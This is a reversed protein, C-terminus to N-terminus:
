FGIRATAGLRTLKPADGQWNHCHTLAGQRSALEGYDDYIGGRGRHDRAFTGVHPRRASAGHVHNAYGAPGPSESKAIWSLTNRATSSRPASSPRGVRGGRAGLGNAQTKTRASAPRPAATPDAPKLRSYGPSASRGRMPSGAHDPSYLAPGPSGSSVRAYDTAATVIRQGFSVGTNRRRLGRAITCDSQDYESPGTTRAIPLQRNSKSAATHVGFSFGRKVSSPLIDADASSSSGRTRSSQSGFRVVSYGISNSSTPGLYKGPGPGFGRLVAEDFCSSRSRSATCFPLGRNREDRAVLAHQPTHSQPGPAGLANSRIQSVHLEDLATARFGGDISATGFTSKVHKSGPSSSRTSPLATTPGPGIRGALSPAGSAVWPGSGVGGPEQFRRESFATSPSFSASVSEEVSIMGDDSMKRDLRIESSPDLEFSVLSTAWSSFACFGDTSFLPALRHFTSRKALLGDHVGSRDVFPAFNVAEFLVHLNAVILLLSGVSSVGYVRVCGTVCTRVDSYIVCTRVYFSLVLRARM